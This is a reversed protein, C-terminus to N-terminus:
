QAMISGNNDNNGTSRPFEWCNCPCCGGISVATNESVNMSRVTYATHNGDSVTLIIIYGALGHTFLESEINSVRFTIPYVGDRFHQLNEEM